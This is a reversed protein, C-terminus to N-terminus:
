REAWKYFRSARTRAGTEKADPQNIHSLAAQDVSRRRDVKTKFFSRVSGLLLNYTIVVYIRIADRIGVDGTDSQPYGM